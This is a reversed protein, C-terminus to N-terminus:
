AALPAISVGLTNFNLTDTNVVARSVTLVASYYFTGASSASWVAVHTITESTTMAFSPTNSLVIAGSAAASWTIAQRTTVASPNATGAAGPDGIHLELFPTAIGTFTTGRLINMVANALNVTSAGVTM